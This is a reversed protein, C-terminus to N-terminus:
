HKGEVPKICEKELKKRFLKNEKMINCIMQEVVTYSPQKHNTYTFAISCKETNIKYGRVM